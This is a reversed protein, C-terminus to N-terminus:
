FIVTQSLSEIRQPNYPKWRLHIKSARLQLGKRALSHKQLLQISKNYAKGLAIFHQFGIVPLLDLNLNLRTYTFYSM